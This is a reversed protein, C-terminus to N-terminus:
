KRIVKVAEDKYKLIYTGSPLTGVQITNVGTKVSIQLLLRGGLDYLSATGDEPVEIVLQRDFPNTLVNLSTIQGTSGVSSPDQVNVNFSTEAYKEGYGSKAVTYRVTLQATGTKGAVPILLLSDTATEISADLLEPNDNAQVSKTLTVGYTPGAYAFVDKLGIRLTDTGLYITTDAIAQAVTPKVIQAKITYSANVLSSAGSPDIAEVQLDIVSDRDVTGRYLAEIRIDGNAADDLQTIWPYKELGRLYIAFDGEHDTFNNSKWITQASPATGMEYCYSNPSMSFRSAPQPAENDELAPQASLNAPIRGLDYIDDKKTFEKGQFVAGQYNEANEDAYFVYSLQSTTNQVAETPYASHGATLLIDDLIKNKQTDYATFGNYNSLLISDGSMPKMAVPVGECFAQIGDTEILSSTNNTTNFEVIAAMEETQPNYPRIGYVRKGKSVLTAIGTGKQGLSVEREMIFNKLDIVNMSAKGDTETAVYLKDGNVVM